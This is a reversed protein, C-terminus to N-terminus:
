AQKRAKASRQAKESKATTWWNSFDRALEVWAPPSNIGERKIKALRAYVPESLRREVEDKGLNKVASKLHDERYTGRERFMLFDRFRKEADAPTKAAPIILRYFEGLSGPFTKPLPIGHEDEGDRGAQGSAEFQLKLAAERWLEFALGVANAPSTNVSETLNSAILALTEASPLTVRPTAPHGNNSVINM